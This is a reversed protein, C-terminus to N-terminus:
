ELSEIQLNYATHAPKEGEIIREIVRCRNEEQLAIEDKEIGGVPPLRLIVTFTHPENQTGLAIGPGLRAEIGLVLNRARHEIIQPIEGTYIELYERLGRCTGRQRYLSVTSRLLRRRKEEPWREDLVLNFWSALWPLLDPSTTRPDFYFPLQDITREIPTLFSEFLMLLQGMLEDDEYLAPLYKLYQAKPQVFVCATELVFDDPADDNRKKGRGATEPYVVARSPLSIHAATHTVRARIQYDYGTGAELPGSKHWVVRVGDDDQVLRPPADDDGGVAQYSEVALGQPINVSLGFGAVPHLVDVRTYFTVSEGRYRRSFDVVHSVVLGSHKVEQEMM